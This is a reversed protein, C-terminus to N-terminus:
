ALIIEESIIVFINLSLIEFLITVSQKNLHRVFRAFKGWEMLHQRCNNDNKDSKEQNIGSRKM